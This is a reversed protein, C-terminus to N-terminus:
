LGGLRGLPSSGPNMQFPSVYYAYDIMKRRRKMLEHYCNVTALADSVASHATRNEVKLTECTKNLSLVPEGPLVAHAISWLDIVRYSGHEFDEFCYSRRALPNLFGLDFPANCFVKRVEDAGNKSDAKETFGKLWAAFTPMVMFDPAQKEIFTRTLGNVELAKPDLIATQYHREDRTIMLDYTPRCYAQYIDVVKGTSDTAVAGIECIGHKAPDLGSTETDIGIYYTM